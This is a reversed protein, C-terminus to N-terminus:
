LHMHIRDRLKKGMKKIIRNLSDPHPSQRVGTKTGYRLDDKGYIENEYYRQNLLTIQAQDVDNLDFFEKVLDVNLSILFMLNHGKHNKPFHIQMLVLCGKLYHEVALGGCYYSPREVQTEWVGPAVRFQGTLLYFAEEFENGITSHWLAEKAIDQNM